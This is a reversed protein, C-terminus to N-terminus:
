ENILCVGKRVSHCMDAFLSATGDAIGLYLRCRNMV